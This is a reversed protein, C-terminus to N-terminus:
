ELIPDWSDCGERAFDAPIPQHYKDCMWAGKEVPRAFICTRCNKAPTADHHCIERFDCMKCEWWSPDATVRAPPHQAAVVQGARDAYAEAVEPKYFVVEMYLDDTNKCVAVYLAWKLGFYRMYTQMQVYHEPKATLVGKGPFPRTDPDTLWKRYDELKGALQIFAKEGSTKNEFLGPGDLDPLTPIMPILGDSSGGFHGNHDSFTFQPLDVGAEKALQIHAASGTVDRCGEPVPANFPIYGYGPPGIILKHPSPVLQINLHALYKAM